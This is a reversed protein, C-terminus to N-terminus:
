GDKKKVANREKNKVRQWAEKHVTEARESLANAATVNFTRPVDKVLAKSACCGRRVCHSLLYDSGLLLTKGPTSKLFALLMAEVGQSTSFKQLRLPVDWLDALEKLALSWSGWCGPTNYM